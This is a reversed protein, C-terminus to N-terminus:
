CIQAACKRVHASDAVAVLQSTRGRETRRHGSPRPGARRRLLHGLDEYRAIRKFETTLGACQIAFQGTDAHMDLSGDQSRATPFAEREFVTAPIGHLHLIRALTLGGPGAGVIAIQIKNNM